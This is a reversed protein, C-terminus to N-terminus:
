QVNKCDRDMAQIARVIRQAYEEGQQQGLDRVRQRAQEAQDSVLLGVVAIADDYDNEQLVTGV